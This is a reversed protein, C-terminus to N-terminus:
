RNKDKLSPLILKYLQNIDGFFDEIEPPTTKKKNQLPKIIKPVHRSDVAALVSDKLNYVQEMLIIYLSMFTMQILTYSYTYNSNINILM